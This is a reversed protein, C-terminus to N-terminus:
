RGAGDGPHKAAVTCDDREEAIRDGDPAGVQNQPLDPQLRRLAPLALGFLLFVAGIQPVIGNHDANRKGVRRLKPGGSRRLQRM